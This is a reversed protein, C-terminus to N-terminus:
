LDMMKNKKLIMKSMKKWVIILEARYVYIIFLYIVGQFAYLWGRKLGIIAQFLLLVYVLCDKRVDIKLKMFRTLFKYRMIWMVVFSIITAIAAGTAGFKPIFLINLLINVIAALVVSYALVKSNKVAIFISGLFGSLASFVTSIVLFSSYRWADYFEKAFLIKAMPVNFLILTSCTIVILANYISYVDRFFGERDEYDYEKIASLGWAQGFIQHVVIIITSIKASVAYVGNVTVGRFYVIFFRDLSGNVWWALGNFVLPISYKIMKHKTDISCSQRFCEKDHICIDVFGIIMSLTSGAVISLLFGVVGMKFYLLTILNCAITVITTLIGMIAVTIVREISRLYYSVMQNLSNSIFVLYLFIYLYKEWYIPNFYAFVVLSVGSIVYGLLMVELGFRFVGYRSEKSEISFRMVADAICLTVLFIMLSSATSVIDATGYEATSLVNTYFPVLFFALIKTGFTSISFILTNKALYDYKSAM